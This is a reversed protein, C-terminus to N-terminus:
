EHESLDEDDRIMRQIDSLGSVPGDYHLNKTVGSTKNEIVLNCIVRQKGNDPDGQFRFKIYDTLLNVIIPVAVSSICFYIIPFYLDQSHLIDIKQETESGDYLAIKLDPNKLRAYKVLNSTESAFSGPKRSKLFSNPLIVIDSCLLQKKMTPDTIDLQIIDELHVDLEEIEITM